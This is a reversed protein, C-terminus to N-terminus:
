LYISLMNLDGNIAFRVNMNTSFIGKTRKDFIFDFGSETLSISDFLQKINSSFIYEGIFGRKYLYETVVQLTLEDPCLGRSVTMSPNNKYQLIQYLFTQIQAKSPIIKTEDPIIITRGEHTVAIMEDDIRKRIEKTDLGFKTGAEKTTMIDRMEVNINSM